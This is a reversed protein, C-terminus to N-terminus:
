AVVGEAKPIGQRHIQGAHRLLAQLSAVLHGGERELVKLENATVQCDAFAAVAGSMLEAFEKALRAVHEATLGDDVLEVAPLPVCLFNCEAAMATLVRYDNALLQMTTADQISLKAGARHPNLEDSLTPKGMRLGLAQAGGPYDRGVCFAADIVNM